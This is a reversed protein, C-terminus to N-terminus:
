LERKKIFDIVLGCVIFQTAITFSFKMLALGIQYTFSSKYLIYTCLVLSSILSVALSILLGYRIIKYIKKDLNKLEFIIKQM